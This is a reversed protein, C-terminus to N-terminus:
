VRDASENGDSQLHLRLSQYAIGRLDELERFIRESYEKGKAQIKSAIFHKSRAHQQFWIFLFTMDPSSM